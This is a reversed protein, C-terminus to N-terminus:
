SIVVLIGLSYLQKSCWCSCYLLQCCYEDADVSRVTATCIKKNPLICTLAVNRCSEKHLKCRQGAVQKHGTLQSIEESEAHESETVVGVIPSPVTQYLLLDRCGSSSANVDDQGCDLQRVILSCLYKKLSQM